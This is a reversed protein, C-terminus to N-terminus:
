PTMVHHESSKRDQFHGMKGIKKKLMSPLGDKLKQAEDKTLRGETIAQDLRKSASESLKQIYQDETWGKKEHAVEPLTKGAKLSNILETRDMELLKATEFIIFHGGARVKGDKGPHIKHGNESPGSDPATSTVYEASASQAPALAPSLSLFLVATIAALKKINNNM